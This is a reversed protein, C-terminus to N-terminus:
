RGDSSHCHSGSLAPAWGAPLPPVAAMGPRALDAVVWNGNHLTLEMSLPLTRGEYAFLLVVNCSPAPQRRQLQVPGVCLFRGAARPRRAAIRWRAALVPVLLIRLSVAPRRGSEVEELWHAARLAVRVAVKLTTGELEPPRRLSSVIAARAVPDRRGETKRSEAPAITMPVAAHM